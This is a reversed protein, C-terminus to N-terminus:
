ILDSDGPTMYWQERYFLSGRNDFPIVVLFYNTGYVLFGLKQFQLFREDVQSFLTALVNRKSETTRQEAMAVMAVTADEDDKPCLWDIIFASGPFLFDSRAFVFIGRLLGSSRERCEYLEYDRDLADAYRWNLYASDRIVALGADDRRAEWLQDVDAGYRDVRTVELDASTARKPFGGAPTERFLFDWDRINEYRLYRQGIRWNPIPWGYHFRAQGHDTGTFMENHRLGLHVFLGPRPAKRRFEPFIFIDAGQATLLDEGEMRVRTSMTSYTGVIGVDQAEAVAIHPRGVPNNGMPADRFKWYWHQLSTSQPFIKNCGEVLSHEDGPRYARITIEDSM